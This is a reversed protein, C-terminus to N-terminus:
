VTLPVVVPLDFFYEDCLAHGCAQVHEPKRRLCVLCTKPSKYKSWDRGLRRLLDVRLAAAGRGSSELTSAIGSFQDEV